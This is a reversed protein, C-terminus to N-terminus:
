RVAAAAIDKPLAYLRGARLSVVDFGHQQYLKAACRVGIPCSKCASSEPHFGGTLEIEALCLDFRQREVYPQKVAEMGRTLVRLTKVQQEAISGAQRELRAAKKTELQAGERWERWTEAAKASVLQKLGIPHKAYRAAEFRHAIFALPDDIKEAKCWELFRQANQVADQHHWGPDRRGMLKERLRYFTNLVAGADVLQQM